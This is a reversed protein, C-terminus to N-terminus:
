VLHNKSLARHIKGSTKALISVDGLTPIEGANLRDNWSELEQDLYEMLKKPCGRCTGICIEAESLGFPISERVQEILNKMATPTDPKM